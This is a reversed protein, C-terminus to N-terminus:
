GWLARTWLRIVQSKTNVRVAVLRPMPSLCDAFYGVDGEREFRLIHGHSTHQAKAVYRLAACGAELYGSKFYSVNM